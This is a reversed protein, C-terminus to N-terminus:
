PTEGRAADRAALEATAFAAQFNLGGIPGDVDLLEGFVYLGPYRNVQMTRPDVERLSLGGRTVEAQEFGLTGDIPIRLGKFAEILEHRAARSLHALAPAPFHGAQQCVAEFVRKPITEPLGRALSLGGGRGTGEVLSARLAERGHDPFLDVALHFLETAGGQQRRALEGSLDMAAPGSVGQHTFLLPRRRRALEKGKGGFLRVEAGPLSVGSLERVWDAPSTLPALAPVPPVVELDLAELWRYGDGVTGTGPYSRGGPCLLLNGAHIVEGERGHVRFGGGDIAEIAQVPFDLRVEVGANRAWRELADRVERASGSLPFVKELPAEGTAVGLEGFLERVRRPPTTRLAARLFRHGAAGFLRGAGEADLTTTLNCRGGGSALIKTGTRSTKELLLVRRGESGARAAAWLGAAGAGVVVIEARADMM